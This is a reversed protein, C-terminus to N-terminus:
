GQGWSNEIWIVKSQRHCHDCTLEGELDPSGVILWQEIEPSRGNTGPDYVATCRDINENACKACLTGGDFTQYFKDEPLTGGNRKLVGKIDRLTNRLYQTLM